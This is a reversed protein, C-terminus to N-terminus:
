VGGLAPRLFGALSVGLADCVGGHLLYQMETVEALLACSGGAKLTYWFSSPM